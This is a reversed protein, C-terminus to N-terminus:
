RRWEKWFRFPTFIIYFLIKKKILPFIPVYTSHKSRNCSTSYACLCYVKLIVSTLKLKYQIVIVCNTYFYRLVAHWFIVYLSGRYRSSSKLEKWQQMDSATATPVTCLCARTPFASPACAPRQSAEVTSGLSASPFASAVTALGGVTVSTTNRSAGLLTSNDLRHWVPKRINAPM